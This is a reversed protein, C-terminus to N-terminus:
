MAGLIAGGALLTILMGSSGIWFLSWKGGWITEGIKFPVFFGIWIWLALMLGGNVTLEGLRGLLGALVYFMVLSAIFQLVYSKWMSKKAAAQQEPSLLDLGMAHIFKKGFLPGYWISGIVMSAVASVLVALYNIDPM